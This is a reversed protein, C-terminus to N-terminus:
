CPAACPAVYVCPRPVFSSSPRLPGHGRVEQRGDASPHSAIVRLRQAADSMLMATEPAFTDQRHGQGNRYLQRVWVSLGVLASTRAPRCLVSPASAALRGPAFTAAIVYQLQAGTLSSPSSLSVNDVSPVYAVQHTRGPQRRSPAAGASIGRRSPRKATAQYAASTQSAEEGVLAALSADANQQDDYVPTRTASCPKPSTRAADHPGPRRGDPQVASSAAASAARESELSPLPHGKSLAITNTLTARRQPTAPQRFFQNPSTFTMAGHKYPLPAPQKSDKLQQRAQAEAAIEKLFQVGRQPAKHHRQVWQDLLVNYYRPTELFQLYKGSTETPFIRVLEGCRAHEEEVDMLMEIDANTLNDLISHLKGRLQLEDGTLRWYCLPPLTLLSREPHSGCRTLGPLVMVWTM